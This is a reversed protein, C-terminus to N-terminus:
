RAAGGLRGPGGHLRALLAVEVSVDSVILEPRCRQIWSSMIAMRNRLGDDHVPAWHLHGGATPDYETEDDRPLCIWPGEWDSPRPLSSLGTVARGLQQRVAQARHLHGLGVHHIYWGIV